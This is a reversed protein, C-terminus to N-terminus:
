EMPEAAATGGIDLKTWKKSTLKKSGEPTVSGNEKFTLSQLKPMGLLKDVAADTVGTARISLEKLNPLAAIVDITADTMQPVTWIDLLELSKLNSLHQL